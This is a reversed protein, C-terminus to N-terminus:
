KKYFFLLNEQSKNLKRLNLNRNGELEKFLIEPLKAKFQADNYQM